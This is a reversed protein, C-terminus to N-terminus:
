DARTAGSAAIGFTGVHMEYLVIKDWSPMNFNTTQWVYSNANYVVSNGISSVLDRARPDNRWLTQTANKVVFKYQAGAQVNAVDVSWYGNGEAFLPLSTANWFNFTGAVTVGTANPAFTRFTTGILTGSAYPIAGIGPRTSIAAFTTSAAFLSVILAPIFAPIAM